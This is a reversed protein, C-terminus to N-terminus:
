NPNLSSPGNGRATMEKLWRSCQRAILFFVYFETSVYRTKRLMTEVKSAAAVSYCVSCSCQKRMRLCIANLSSPGNRRATMKKM